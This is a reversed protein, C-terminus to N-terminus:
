ATRSLARSRWRRATATARDPLSQKVRNFFARVLRPNKVPVLNGFDDAVYAGFQGAINYWMACPELDQFM